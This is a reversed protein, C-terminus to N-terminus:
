ENGKRKVSDAGKLSSPYGANATARTLEAVSTQENEFTVVAERREYSVDARIVGEVRNLATKVTLPCAACTMGPVALTVSQEAALASTGLMLLRGALAFRHKM